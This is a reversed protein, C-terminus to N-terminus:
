APENRTDCTGYHRRHENRPRSVLFLLHDCLLNDRCVVASIGTSDTGQATAIQRDFVPLRRQNLMDTFSPGPIVRLSHKEEFDRVFRWSAQRQDRM